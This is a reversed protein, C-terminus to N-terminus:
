EISILYPYLPQGGHHVEVAVGPHSENLWETIRRTDKQRAGDGEILTVLEHRPEILKDLLEICAGDMTKGVVEIGERSLGL